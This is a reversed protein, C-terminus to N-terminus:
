SVMSIMRGGFKDTVQSERPKTAGLKREGQGGSIVGGASGSPKRGHVSGSQHDARVTKRFRQEGHQAQAATAFIANHNEDVYALLRRHGRPLCVLCCPRSEARRRLLDSKRRCLSVSHGRSRPDVKATQVASATLMLPKAEGFWHASGCANVEPSNARRTAKDDLVDAHIPLKGATANTPNFRSGSDRKSVM